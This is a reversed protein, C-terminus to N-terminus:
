SVTRAGHFCTHSLSGARRAHVNKRGVDVRRIRCKLGVAITQGPEDGLQALAQRARSPPPGFYRRRWMSCPLSGTRSRM